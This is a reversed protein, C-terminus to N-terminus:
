VRAADSVAAAKAPHTRSWNWLLVAGLMVIVVTQVFYDTAESTSQASNRLLDHLSVPGYQSEPPTSLIILFQVFFTASMVVGAAIACWMSRGIVQGIRLGAHIPAIGWFFLFVVILVVVMVPVIQGLSRAAVVLLSGFDEGFRSSVDNYISAVLVQVIALALFAGVIAAATVLAPLPRRVGPGPQPPVSPAPPGYVAQETTSV